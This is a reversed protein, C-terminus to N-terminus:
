QLVLLRYHSDLCNEILRNLLESHPNGINKEELVPLFVAQCMPRPYCGCLSTAATVLCRSAPESLSLVKKLLLSKIFKTATVYSLDHSPALISSCLKPLVQENLDPLSLLNCLMEVQVPDCENLVKFVDISSQDWDTESELVEKIQLVSNKIHQPLFSYQSGSDTAPHINKDTGESAVLSESLEGKVSQEAADICEM